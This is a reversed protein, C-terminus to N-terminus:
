RTFYFFLTFFIVLQSTKTKSTYNVYFLYYPSFNHAISRIPIWLKYFRWPRRWTPKKTRNPRNKIYDNNHSKPCNKIFSESPVWTHNFESDFNFTIGCRNTFAKSDVNRRMVGATQGKNGLRLHRLQNLHSKPRLAQLIHPYRRTTLVGRQPRPFRPEFGLVWM